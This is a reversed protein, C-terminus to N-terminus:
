MEDRTKLPQLVSYGEGSYKGTERNLNMRPSNALKACTHNFNGSPVRLQELHIIRLMTLIQGVEEWELVSKHLKPYSSHLM